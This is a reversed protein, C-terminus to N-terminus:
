FLQLELTRIFGSVTQNAVYTETLGCPYINAFVVLNLHERQCCVSLSAYVEMVARKLM